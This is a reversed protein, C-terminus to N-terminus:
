GQLVIRKTSQRASIFDHMAHHALYVIKFWECAGLVRDLEMIYYVLYYRLLICMCSWAAADSMEM